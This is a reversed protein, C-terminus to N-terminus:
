GPETLGKALHEKAMGLLRNVASELEASALDSMAPDALEPFTKKRAGALAQQRAQELLVAGAAGMQLFQAALMLSIAWEVAYLRCEAKLEDGTIM